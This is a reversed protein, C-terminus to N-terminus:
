HLFLYDGVDLMRFSIGELKILQSLDKLLAEALLNPQESLHYVVNLGHECLPNWQSTEISEFNRTLLSLIQSFLSHCNPLRVGPDSMALKKIAFCVRKALM